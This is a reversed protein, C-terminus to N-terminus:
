KNEFGKPEYGTMPRKSMGADEFDQKKWGQNLDPSVSKRNWTQRSPSQRSPSKRPSKLYTQKPRYPAM